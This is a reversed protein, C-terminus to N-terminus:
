LLKNEVIAGQRVRADKPFARAVLPEGKFEFPRQYADAEDPQEVVCVLSRRIGGGADGVSMPASRGALGDQLPEILPDRLRSRLQDVFRGDGVGHVVQHVM